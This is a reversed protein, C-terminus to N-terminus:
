VQPKLIRERQKRTRFKHGKVVRECFMTSKAAYSSNVKTKRRQRKDNEVTSGVIRQEDAADAAAVSPLVFSEIVFRFLFHRTITHYFEGHCTRLM